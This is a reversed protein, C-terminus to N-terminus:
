SGATPSRRLDLQHFFAWSGTNVPRFTIGSGNPAIDIVSWSKRGHYTPKHVAFSSAASHREIRTYVNGRGPLAFVKTLRPPQFFKRSIYLLFSLTGNYRAEILQGRTLFVMGLSSTSQRENCSNRKTRGLHTARKNRAQSSRAHPNCAKRADDSGGAHHSANTGQENRLSGDSHRRWTVQAIIATVVFSLALLKSAIIGSSYEKAIKERSVPHQIHM